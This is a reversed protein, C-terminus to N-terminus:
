PGKNYFIYLGDKGAVIIDKRGSGTLDSVSFYIGIGKGEGFSGYSIIQKTFSEGNWKYYYIGVPDYAGPDGDNHARYRKGTLLEEQGDGDLDVWQMVHFQSNFPDISHKIWSSVNTKKDKRQEYWDLGYDHAQGVILDNLGDKNVDAIIIPVSSTGLNFEPHFTWPEKYPNAPSEVWGNNIILDARGDGNIDGCGLGHGQKEIKDTIKYRDFKGMGKGQADRVLRYVVLPDNPTNPIIEPVGDGDIDWARTTEVNGTEAIDHLKWENNNGPNEKWVIKKGFWGGTIFDIFGDGNIDLPVTSFDDWYEGVRNVPGIYHRKVYEPGEYWFAGSVIDPVKDNNVDFVGVAEFSESAIQKKTFVIPGPGKKPIINPGQGFSAVICISIFFCLFIPRNYM